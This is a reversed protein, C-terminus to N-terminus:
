LEFNLKEPYSSTVDYADVDEKTQLANIEREKAERVNYCSGAYLELKALMTKATDNPIPIVIGNIPLDTTPNGLLVNANIQREINGRLTPDLWLSIGNVFFENLGNLGETNYYINLEKIKAERAQGIEDDPLNDVEEFDAETEGNLLTCRKFYADSGKRHIYKNEASIIEKDLIIM